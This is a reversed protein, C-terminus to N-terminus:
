EEPQEESQEESQIEAAIKELGTMIKENLIGGIGLKKLEMQTLRRANRNAITEAMRMVEPMALFSLNKYRYEQLKGEKIMNTIRSTSRKLLRSATAQNILGGSQMWKQMWWKLFNIQDEESKM